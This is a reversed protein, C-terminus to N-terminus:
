GFEIVQKAIEELDRESKLGALCYGDPRIVAGWVGRADLWDGAGTYRPLRPHEAANRTLVYFGHNAADDALRGDPLRVQPALVGGTGNRPGLGPGLDPWISKMRGKPAQGATTQNILKGLSVAMEIFARANPERESQYTELIAEDVGNLVGSLKWGLNAADRVGACM